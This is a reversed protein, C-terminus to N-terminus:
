ASRNTSVLTLRFTVVAISPPPYSSATDSRGREGDIGVGHGVTLCGTGLGRHGINTKSIAACNAVSPTATTPQNGVPEM